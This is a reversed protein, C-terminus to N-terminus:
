LDLALAVVVVGASVCVGGDGGVGGDGEEMDTEEVDDVDELVAPIELRSLPVCVWAWVGM